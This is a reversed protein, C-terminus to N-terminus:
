FAIIGQAVADCLFMAGLWLLVGITTTIGARLLIKSTWSREKYVGFSIILALIAFILGWTVIIGLGYLTYIFLDSTFPSQAPNAHFMFTFIIFAAIAVSVLVQLIFPFLGYIKPPNSFEFEFQAHYTLDPNFNKPMEFSTTKEVERVEQIPAKAAQAQTRVHPLEGTPNSDITQAIENTKDADKPTLPEIEDTSPTEIDSTDYHHETNMGSTASMGAGLIVAPKDDYRYMDYELPQAEQVVAKREEDLPSPDNKAISAMISEMIEDVSEEQSEFKKDDPKKNNTTM